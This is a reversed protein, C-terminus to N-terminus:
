DTEDPRDNDLAIKRGRHFIRLITVTRGDVRFAITARRRYGVFRVGPRIDNRQAGRKPSNALGLCYNQIRKVYARAPVIGMRPALYILIDELDRQASTRFEVEYIM